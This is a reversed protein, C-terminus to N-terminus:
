RKCPAHACRRRLPQVCPAGSSGGCFPPALCATQAPQSCSLLGGLSCPSGQLVGAYAHLNSNVAAVAVSGEVGVRLQLGCGVKIFLADPNQAALQKLKPFLRRCGMCSPKLYDVVVLQNTPAQVILRKYEAPSTATLLNAPADATDRWWSNEQELLAAAEAQLEMKRCVPLRASPCCHVTKLTQESALESPGFENRAGLAICAPRSRCCSDALCSIAHSLMPFM